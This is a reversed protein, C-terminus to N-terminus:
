ILKFLCFLGNLLKNILEHVIQSILMIKKICTIKNKKIYNSIDWDERIM